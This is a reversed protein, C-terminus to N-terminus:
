TVKKKVYLHHFIYMFVIGTVFMLIVEFYFQLVTLIGTYLVTQVMALQWLLKTFSSQKLKEKIPYLDPWVIVRHHKYLATMQFISLYLFILAFLVKMWGNPIVFLLVGGIVFLRIYMGFYDGSRIFTLRYLYDYTHTQSFPIYHLLIKALQSRKRIRRKLHPVEAFMNALQYFYQMRIQDKEVLLNWNITFKKGIVMSEYLFLAFFIVTILGAFFYDGKIVFYFLTWNLFFRLFLDFSRISKERVKLMAWNMYLNGAKFIFLLLVTWLYIKGSRDPYAHFYLPGLAAVIIFLVYLQVLFSYILTNRFYARMQQEAVMVFVIDPEKLLTRVPNYTVVIGFLGSIIINAPFNAPLHQLWQQYYVASASILFIMAIAIHGNLIYRLYRNLEKGHALLREKYFTNANFTMM